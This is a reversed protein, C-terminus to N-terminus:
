NCRDCYWAIYSDDLAAPPPAACAPVYYWMCELCKNCQIMQGVEPMRCDCFLDIKDVRKVRVTKEESSPVSRTKQEKLMQVFAEAARRHPTKTM